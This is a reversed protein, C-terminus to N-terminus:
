IVGRRRYELVAVRRTLETLRYPDGIRVGVVWAIGEPGVVLPIRDRRGRPIKGDILFEKLRRGGEGGLPHFRDGPLRSRVTVLPGLRDADLCARDDGAMALSGESRAMVRAEIVGDLPTVAAQGPIRMTFSFPEAGPTEHPQDARWVCLDGGERSARLGGPFGVEGGPATRGATELLRCVAAQSAGRPDGGARALLLRAARRALPAPMTGLVSAEVVVGGPRELGGSRVKGDLLDAALGDLFRDEEALVGASRALVSVISPRIGELMPVVSHRVRNRLLREDANTEDERWEQGIEALWSRLESRRMGLLPRVLMGPGSWAMGSLGRRGAGRFMRMLVTEAQDDMTHGLAVRTCGAATAARRLLAHRARRLSEEGAGGGHLLAPDLPLAVCRLGLRGALSEVFRQDADSSAGRLAHNVHAVVLRLRLGPLDALLRLLAVSDSGGSVAVLVADGQALLGRREVARHLRAPIASPHRSTTSM